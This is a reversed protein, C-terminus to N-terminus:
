RKLRKMNHNCNDFGGFDDAQFKILLKVRDDKILRAPLVAHFIVSITSNDTSTAAHSNFQIHM